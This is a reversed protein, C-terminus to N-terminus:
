TGTATAVLTTNACIDINQTGTCAGGLVWLENMATGFGFAARGEGTPMSPQQVWAVGDVSSWVDALLQPVNDAPGM